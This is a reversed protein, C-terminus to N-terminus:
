IFLADGPELTVRNQKFGRITSSGGAQFRETPIIEEDDFGHAFGARVGTAWVLQKLPHFYFFQTFNKYFNISSGIGPPAIELGNSIFSGRTSNLINDRTDRSLSIDFWATSVKRQLALPSDLDLDDRTYIRNRQYTYDYTFIYRNRFVRQQLLTFGTTD